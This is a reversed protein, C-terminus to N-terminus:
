GQTSENGGTSETSQLASNEQPFDFTHMFGSLETSSIDGGIVVGDFVLLNARIVGDSNEYGPYNKVSYSWCKVRAGKFKELDLKQEKQITNYQNYVDDFEQPIVVEKVEVPEEEVEWGFQSLFSLREQATEAKFTIGNMSSVPASQSKNVAYLGGITAFVAVTAVVAITKLTSSKVSVFFM